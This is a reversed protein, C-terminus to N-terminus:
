LYHLVCHSTLKLSGKNLWVSGVILLHETFVASKSNLDTM